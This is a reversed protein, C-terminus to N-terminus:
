LFANKRFRIRRIFWNLSIMNRPVYAYSRFTNPSKLLHRLVTSTAWNTSPLKCYWLDATRIWDDAFNKNFMQKRDVSNSLRFYLFLPRFHDLKFFYVAFISIKSPWNIKKFLFTLCSDNQAYYHRLWNILFLNQPLLDKAFLFKFKQIDNGFNHIGHCVATTSLENKTMQTMGFSSGSVQDRTSTEKSESTSKLPAVGAERKRYKLEKWVCIKCFFSYSPKLPIRVKDDSYFALVSVM